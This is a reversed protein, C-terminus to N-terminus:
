NALGYRALKIIGFSAARVCPHSLCNNEKFTIPQFKLLHRASFATRSGIYSARLDRCCGPRSLWKGFLETWGFVRFDASSKLERIVKVPTWPYKEDRATRLGMAFPVDIGFRGSLLGEMNKARSKWNLTKPAGKIHFALENLVSSACIYDLPTSAMRHHRPLALPLVRDIFHQLLPLGIELAHLELAMMTMVKHLSFGIAKTSNCKNEAAERLLWTLCALVDLDAILELKKLLDRNVPARQVFKMIGVQESKFLVVQLEASLRNLLAEGEMIKGNDLDLVEWLPHNFIRMSGPANEEVKEVTDQSIGEGDRYRRWKNRSILRGDANRSFAGPELRREM